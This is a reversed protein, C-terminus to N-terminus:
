LHRLSGGPTDRHTAVSRWVLLAAVALVAVVLGPHPRLGPALIVVLAVTTAVLSHTLHHRHM